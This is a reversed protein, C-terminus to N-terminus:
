QQSRHRRLMAETKETRNQETRDPLSIVLIFALYSQQYVQLIGCKVTGHTKYDLRVHDAHVTWVMRLKFWAHVNEPQNQTIVLWRGPTRTVSHTSFVSPNVVDEM